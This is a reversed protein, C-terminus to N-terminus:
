SLKEEVYKIIDGVKELSEADEDAIEIEFEEEISMVLEVVDLSDAGLADLTSEETIDDIEVNLGEAVVNKVRELTSM